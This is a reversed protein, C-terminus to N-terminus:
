RSAERATRASQWLIGGVGLASALTLAAALGTSLRHRRVFKLTRTFNGIRRAEIAELRSYRGLDAAFAEASSYRDAPDTALAKALIADLDGTLARALEAATM